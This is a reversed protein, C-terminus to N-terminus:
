RDTSAAEAGGTRARYLFFAGAIPGFHREYMRVKAETRTNSLVGIMLPLGLEDAVMKSFECLRSARGGAAARHGPHVYIAREEIVKDTSYWLPGIRLLVAAELAGRPGVLGMIGHERTLGAWVDALIKEPSPTSVGNETSGMLALGMVDHVDDPTGIRVKLTARALSGDPM